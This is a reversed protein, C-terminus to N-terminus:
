PTHTVQNTQCRHSLNHELLRNGSSNGHRHVVEVGQVAVHYTAWMKSRGDCRMFIGACDNSEHSEQGQSRHGMNGQMRTNM